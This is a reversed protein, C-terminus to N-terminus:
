KLRESNLFRTMAVRSLNKSTLFNSLCGTPIGQFKFEVSVPKMYYDIDKQFVPKLTGPWCERVKNGFKFAPFHRTKSIRGVLQNVHKWM